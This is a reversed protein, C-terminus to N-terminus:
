VFTGMFEQWGYLAFQLTTAPEVRGGQTNLRPLPEVHAHGSTLGQAEHVVGHGTLDDDAGAPSIADETRDTIVGAAAALRQGIALQDAQRNLPPARLAGVPM